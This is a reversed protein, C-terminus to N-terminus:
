GQKWFTPAEITITEGKYIHCLFYIKDKNLIIVAKTSRITMSHLARRDNRNVYSPRFKDGRAFLYFFQFVVPDSLIQYSSTFIVIINSLIICVFQALNVQKHFKEIAYARKNQQSLRSFGFSSNDQSTTCHRKFIRCYISTFTTKRWVTFNLQTHSDFYPHFEM